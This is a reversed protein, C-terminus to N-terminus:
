GGAREEAWKKASRKAGLAEKRELRLLHAVKRGLADEHKEIIGDSYMVKWLAELVKLKEELPFGENIARTFGYVDAAHEREKHAMDLLERAQPGTIGFIDKMTAVVHELEDDTCKYDAYAAELLVVCAAVEVRPGHDKGSAAGGSELGIAKKLIGFM